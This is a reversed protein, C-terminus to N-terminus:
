PVSWLLIGDARSLRHGQEGHPLAIRLLPTHVGVSEAPEIGAQELEISLFTGYMNMKNQIPKTIERIM